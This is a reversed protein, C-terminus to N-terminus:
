GSQEASRLGLHLLLALADEQSMIASRDSVFERLRKRLREELPLCAYNEVVEQAVSRKRAEIQTRTPGRDPDGRKRAAEKNMVAIGARIVKHLLETEDLLLPDLDYLDDMASREAEDLLVNFRTPFLKPRPHPKM